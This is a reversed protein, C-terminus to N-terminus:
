KIDRVVWNVSLRKLTYIAKVPIKNEDNTFWFFLTNDPKVLNNTLIDSRATPQSDIFKFSIAVKTTNFVGIPTKIIENTIFKCSITSLKGVNDITFSHEKKLDVTRLYFLASFFDRTDSFLRYETLDGKNLCQRVAHLQDHNYTTVTNEAFNHQEIKKIYKKPLYNNDKSIWYSNEFRYNFLNALVTSKAYIDIENDNHKISVDAVKFGKFEISVQITEAALNNFLIFLTLCIFKLM